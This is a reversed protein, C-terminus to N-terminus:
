ICRKAPVRYPLQLYEFIEKESRVPLPEGVVGTVGVPCFSYESLKFGKNIAVCSFIM